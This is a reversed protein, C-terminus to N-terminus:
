HIVAPFGHSPPRPVSVAIAGSTLTEMTPHAPCPVSPLLAAPLAPQPLRATHCSKAPIVFLSGRIAVVNDYGHRVIVVVGEGSM